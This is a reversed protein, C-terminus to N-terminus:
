QWGVWRTAARHGCGGSANGEEEEEEKATCQRCHLGKGIGNVEQRSHSITPAWGQSFLPPQSRVRACKHVSSACLTCTQPLGRMGWAPKQTVTTGTDSQAPHSSSLWSLGPDRVPLAVPVYKHRTHGPLPM